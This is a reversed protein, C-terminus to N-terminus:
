DINLVWYLTLAKETLQIIENQYHAYLAMDQTDKKLFELRKIESELTAIKQVIEEKTKM